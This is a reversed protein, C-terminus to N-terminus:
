SFLKRNCYNTLISKSGWVKPPELIPNLLMQYSHKIHPERTQVHPCSVKCTHPPTTLSYPSFFPLFPSRSLSSQLTLSCSCLSLLAAELMSPLVVEERSTWASLTSTPSSSLLGGLAQLIFSYNLPVTNVFTLFVLAKISFFGILSSIYM